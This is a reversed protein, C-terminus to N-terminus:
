KFYNDVYGCYKCKRRYDSYNSCLAALIDLIFKFKGLGKKKCQPCKEYKMKKEGTYSYLM